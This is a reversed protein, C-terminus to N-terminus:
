FPYHFYGLFIFSFSHVFLLYIVFGVPVNLIVFFHSALAYIQLVFNATSLDPGRQLGQLIVHVLSVSPDVNPDNRSSVSEAAHQSFQVVNAKSPKQTILDTSAAVNKVYQLGSIVNTVGFWQKSYKSMTTTGDIPKSRTWRKGDTKDKTNAGQNDPCNTAIHGDKNCKFCVLAEGKNNGNWEGKEIMERYSATAITLLKAPSM